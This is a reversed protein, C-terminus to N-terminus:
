PPPSKLAPLLAQTLSDVVRQRDGPPAAVQMLVRQVGADAYERLRSLVDDPTGLLLYRDALPRFDQAYATSVTDIGTTRAWNRDGDVCTWAFLAGDVSAGLRGLEDAQSRVDSLTQHLRPPDVMYPMWVDAYRAARRIAGHKRGGIWIPPGGPQVPGPKLTVGDLCTFAGEFSTPEGRFLAKLVEISEDARRFRTALDVGVALFEAPYEGGVGVGLEFRGGSVVDLSAALKAALAAPYLPLVCVSSVLTIRSTAGAAAALSIFPNATPGHFFLHEGSAVFDFGDREAERARDVITHM